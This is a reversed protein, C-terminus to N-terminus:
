INVTISAISALKAVNSADITYDVQEDNIKVNKVNLVGDITKLYYIIDAIYINNRKISNIYSLLGNKMQLILASSDYTATDLTADVEISIYNVTPFIVSYTIPFTVVKDLANRVNQILIPDVVGSENTIYVTINGNTPHNGLVNVFTIGDVAYVKSEISDKNGTKLGLIYSPFRGRYSDDSENNTGNEIPYLNTTSEIGSPTSPMLILTGSATNYSAGSDNAIVYGTVTTAGSTLTIDSLVKYSLKNGFIDAETTIEFDQPILIDLTRGTAGTFQQIGVAKTATKPNFDFDSGRLTLHLGKATAIRFSLYALNVQLQMFEVFYAVPQFLARAVSGEGWFTPKNTSFENIKNKMIDFIENFTYNTRTAM